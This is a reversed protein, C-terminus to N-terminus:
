IHILSLTSIWSDDSEYWFIEANYDQASSATALVAGIGTYDEGTSIGSTRTKTLIIPKAGGDPTVRISLLGDLAYGRAAITADTADFDTAVSCEAQTDTLLNAASHATTGSTPVGDVYYIVNSPLVAPM